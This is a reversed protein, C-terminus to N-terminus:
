EGTALLTVKSLFTHIHNRQQDLVYARLMWVPTHQTVSRWIDSLFKLPLPISLIEINKHNRVERVLSQQIEFGTNDKHHFHPTPIDAKATFISFDDERKDFDVGWRFLEEIQAPPRV